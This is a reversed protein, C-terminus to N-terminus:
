RQFIANRATRVEAALIQLIKFPQDQLKVRSGGRRVEGLRLDAEFEGFRVKHLGNPSPSHGNQPLEQM